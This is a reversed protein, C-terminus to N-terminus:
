KLVRITNRSIRWPAAANERVLRATSIALMLLNNGDMGWTSIQNYFRATMEHPLAGADLFLNGVQHRMRGNFHAALQGPVQALSERGIVPDPRTGEFVGDPTYLSAWEEGMNEDVYWCYRGLLDQVAIVDEIPVSM